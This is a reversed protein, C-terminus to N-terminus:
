ADLHRQLDPGKHRIKLPNFVLLKPGVTSKYGGDNYYRLMETVESCRMFVLVNIRVVGKTPVINCSPLSPMLPAADAEKSM